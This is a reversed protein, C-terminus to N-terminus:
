GRRFRTRRGTGGAENAAFITGIQAPVDEARDSHGPGRDNGYEDERIM